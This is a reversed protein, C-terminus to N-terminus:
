PEEVFLRPPFSSLWGSVRAPVDAGMPVSESANRQGNKSQTWWLRATERAALVFIAPLRGNIEHRSPDVDRGTIQDVKDCAATIFLTLEAADDQNVDYQLAKRLDSATLPWNTAM